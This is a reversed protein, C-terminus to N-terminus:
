KTRSASCDTRTAEANFSEIVVFQVARAEGVNWLNRIWKRSSGGYRVLRLGYTLLNFSYFTMLIAAPWSSKKNNKGKAKRITFCRLGAFRGAPLVGSGKRSSALVALGDIM